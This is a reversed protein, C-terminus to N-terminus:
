RSADASVPAFGQPDVALLAHLARRRLANICVQKGAVGYFLTNTPLQDEFEDEEDEGNEAAASPAAEDPGTHGHQMPQGQQEPVLGNGVSGDAPSYQSQDEGPGDPEVDAASPRKDGAGAPKGNQSKNLEELLNELYGKAPASALDITPEAPEDSTPAHLETWHPAKCQRPHQQPLSPTPTSSSPIAVGTAPQSKPLEALADRCCLLSTSRMSVLKSILCHISLLRSPLELLRGIM